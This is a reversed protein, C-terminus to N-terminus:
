KNFQEAGGGEGLSQFPQEKKDMSYNGAGLVKSLKKWM